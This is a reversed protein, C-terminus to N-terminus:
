AGFLQALMLEEAGNLLQVVDYGFTLDLKILLTALGAVLPCTVPALRWVLQEFTPLFTHRPELPGMDRIRAMLSRQWERDVELNEKGLYAHRLINTLREPEYGSTQM